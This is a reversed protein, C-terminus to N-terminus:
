LHSLETLMEDASRVGVMVKKIIGHRDIFYLAPIGPATLTDGLLGDPDAVAELSRGAIHLYAAVTEARQQEAIPVVNIDTNASLQELPGLQEAALPAWTALTALVTPKGYWDVASVTRGSTTTLQVLPLRVDGKAKASVVLASPLPAEELKPWPLPITLPGLKFSSWAQLAIKGSLPTPKDVSFSRTLTDIGDPVVIKVYYKGPPVLLSFGHNASLPQPNQQGYAAGDWVQWRQGEPNLYYLTAVAKKLAGPAGSVTVPPVVEVTALARSGHNGAGDVADGTLVYRGAKSFSLVGVWLGSESSKTLTFTQMHAAGGQTRVTTKIPGGVLSVNLKFDEGAPLVLTGDSAPMTMQGGLMLVSTGFRPPLRDIVLTVVATSAQNGSPDTARALVMYNGDDLVPPTFTFSVNGPSKVAKKGTGVVTQTVSDAPLWNEGGDTSYEVRSVADNDHATGTFVPATPYAGHLVTVFQIDPPTTETAKGTVTTIAGGGVSKTPGGGAAPIGGNNSITQIDATVFTGDGSSTTAGDSPTTSLVQYHYTTNPALGTLTMSHGTVLSANPGKVSGYSADAGYDVESTALKNTDWTVTASTTGLNTVQVNSMQLSVQVDGSIALTHNGGCTIANAGNIDDSAYFVWDAPSDNTNAAQTQISFNLTEGTDLTGGTLYTSTSGGSTQDNWGSITTSVITFDGSPVIVRMWRIANADMNQLTFDVDVVSNPATSSPSSDVTCSALSARAAPVPLVGTILCMVAGLVLLRKFRILM